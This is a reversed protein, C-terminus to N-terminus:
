FNDAIVRPIGINCIGSINGMLLVNIFIMKLKFCSYIKFKKYKEVAINLLM